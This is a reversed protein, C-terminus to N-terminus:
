RHRATHSFSRCTGRECSHCCAARKTARIKRNYHKLTAETPRGADDVGYMDDACRAVGWRPEDRTIKLANPHNTCAMMASRNPVRTREIYKRNIWLHDETIFGKLSDVLDVKKNPAAEHLFVLRKHLFIDNFADVLADERELLACNIAGFIVEMLRGIWSKGTRKEGVLLLAFDPREDPHQVMWALFDVVLRREVENPILYRLHRAFIQPKEDLPLVHPDQWMNLEGDVFDPQEPRYCVRNAVQFDFKSKTFKFAHDRYRGELNPVLNVIRNYAMDFSPISVMAKDKRRVVMTPSIVGIYARAILDCVFEIHAEGDDALMYENLLDDPLQGKLTEAFEAMGTQTDTESM